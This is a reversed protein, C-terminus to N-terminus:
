KCSRIFALMQAPTDFNDVGIEATDIRIGYHQEFAAVLAPFSFSDILGSSIVPTQSDVKVDSKMRAEILAIVENM